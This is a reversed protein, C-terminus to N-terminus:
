REDSWNLIVNLQRPVSGPDRRIMLFRKDDPSPDYSRFDRDLFNTWDFLRHPAGLAGDPRIAVAAVATDTMYFLESGDRSWKPLFGGGNSVVIRNADTPYSQLYIEDRGSEDSTYAVWYQGGELGPSIQADRENFPTVRFPLVVEDRSSTGPTVTWLDIGTQPHIEFYLLTGDALVSTPFQDYPRSLL